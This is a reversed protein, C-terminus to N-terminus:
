VEGPPEGRCKRYSLRESWPSECHFCGVAITALNERDLDVQTGDRGRLTSAPVRFAAVAVWVHEGHRPTLLEPRLHERDVTYGSVVAAGGASV